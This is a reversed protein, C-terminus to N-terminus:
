ANNGSAGSVTKGDTGDEDEMLDDLTVGTDLEVMFPGARKKERQSARFMQRLTKVKKKKDQKVDVADARDQARCRPLPKWTDM